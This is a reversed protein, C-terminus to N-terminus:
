KVTIYNNMSMCVQASLNSAAEMIQQVKTKLIINLSYDNEILKLINFILGANFTDGAGILSVPTIPLAPVTVSIGEGKYVSGQSGKTIFLNHCGHASVQQYICETDDSGFLNRFDENSGRVIDAFSINELVWHMENESLPCHSTRINPDYFIKGGKQKISTLLSIIRKRKTESISYFSGFLLWDNVTFEPIKEQIELPELTRYFDYHSEKQEDLFAMSIITKGTESLFFFTTDIENEQLFQKIIQGCFDNGAESIFTTKCGLRSLSIASNLMSGGPTSTTARNNQFIIDMVTEGITFIRFQNM